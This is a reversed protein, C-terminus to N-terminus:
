RTPAPAPAPTPAPAPAPNIPPVPPLAVEPRPPVLVTKGDISLVLYTGTYLAWREAWLRARRLAAMVAADFEDTSNEISM